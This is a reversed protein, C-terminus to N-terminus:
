VKLRHRQRALQARDPVPQLLAQLTTVVFRPPEDSELQKLVRLRPGAVEDVLADSVPWADWAPFLVPRVGAFSLLDEAWADADRPHALVVVLPRPAHLGLAATVLAASSNWAGDVTAARGNKLAAVVPHFGPTYQVARTLDLLSDFGLGEAPTALAQSHEDM